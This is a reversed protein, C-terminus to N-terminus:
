RVANKGNTAIGREKLIEVMGKFQGVLCHGPEYYLPQPTGDAFVAPGMQKQVKKYTGDSNYVQKGESDKENVSVFFNESPGKPM